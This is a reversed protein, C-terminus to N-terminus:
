TSANTTLRISYDFIYTAANFLKKLKNCLQTSKNIHCGLRDGIQTNKYAKKIFFQSKM